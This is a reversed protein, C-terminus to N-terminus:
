ARLFGMMSNFKSISVKYWKSFKKTKKKVIAM